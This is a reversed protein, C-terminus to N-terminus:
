PFRDFAKAGDPMDRRRVARVPTEDLVPFTADGVRQCPSHGTQPLTALNFLGANWPLAIESGFGQRVERRVDLLDLDRPDTTKTLDTKEVPFALAQDHRIEDLVKIIMM